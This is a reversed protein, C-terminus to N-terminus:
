EKLAEKRQFSGFWGVNVKVDSVLSALFDDLVDILDVPAV